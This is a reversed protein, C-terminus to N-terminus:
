KLLKAQIARVHKRYPEPCEAEWLRLHDAFPIAGKDRNKNLFALAGWAEPDAEFIPLLEIAVASNKDRDTPNKRLEPLNEKLWVAVDVDDALQHKDIRDQAYATLKHRYGKWNSYPPDTEWSKGMERLAYLSAMECLTEEFWLNARDGERYHCLIHCFEHAFQFAYQSWYTEGTDLKVRYAGETGRKFYVIPGGADNTVDIRKLQRDYANPWISNAASLCVERVDAESAGKWVGKAPQIELKARPEEAVARLTSCHVIFSLSLILYIIRKQLM